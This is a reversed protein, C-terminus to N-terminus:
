TRAHIARAPRHVTGTLSYSIRFRGEHRKVLDLLLTPRRDTASPRGGQPWIEENKADDFYFPDSDFVSYRRLRHPQHVQFYFVVSAM